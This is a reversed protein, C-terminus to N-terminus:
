VLPAGWIPFWRGLESEVPLEEGLLARIRLERENDRR